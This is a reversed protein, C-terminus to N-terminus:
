VRTFTSHLINVVRQIFMQNQNSGLDGARAIPVLNPRWWESNEFSNDWSFNAPILIAAMGRVAGASPCNVMGEPWRVGAVVM